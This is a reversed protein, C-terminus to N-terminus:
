LGRLWVRPDLIVVRARVPPALMWLPSYRCCRSFWCSKSWLESLPLVVGVGVGVLLLFASWTLKRHRSLESRVFLRLGAVWLAGSGVVLVSGIVTM